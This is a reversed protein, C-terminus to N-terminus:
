NNWNIKTYLGIWIVKDTQKLFQGVPKQVAQNSADFLQLQVWCPSVLRQCFSLEESPGSRLLPRPRSCCQELPLNPNMSELLVCLRKKIVSFVVKFQPQRGKSAHKQSFATGVQIRIKGFPLNLWFTSLLFLNSKPNLVLTNILAPVSGNRQQAMWICM